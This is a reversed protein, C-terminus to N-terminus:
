GETETYQKLLADLDAAPVAKIWYPKAGVDTGEMVGLYSTTQHKLNEAFDQIAEQRAKTILSEVSSACKEILDDPAYDELWNRIEGAVTKTGEDM